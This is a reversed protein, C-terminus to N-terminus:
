SRQCDVFANGGIDAGLNPFASTEGIDLTRISPEVWTKRSDAAKNTDDM